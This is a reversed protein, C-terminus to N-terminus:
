KNIARARRIAYRVLLSVVTESFPLMIKQRTHEEKLWATITPLNEACWDCGKQDMVKARQNCACGPSTTIGVKSLLKKLETGPGSAVSKVSFPGAEGACPDDGCDAGAHFTCCPDDGCGSCATCTVNSGDDVCPSINGFPYFDTGPWKPGILEGEETGCCGATVSAFDTVLSWVTQPPDFFYATWQYVRPTVVNVTAGCYGNAALATQLDECFGVVDDAASNAEAETEWYYPGLYENSAHDWPHM